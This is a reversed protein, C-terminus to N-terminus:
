VAGPTADSIANARPRDETNWYDRFRARWRIGGDTLTKRKSSTKGSFEIARKATTSAYFTNNGKKIKKMWGFLINCYLLNKLRAENLDIGLGSLVERLEGIKIAGYDYVIGCILLVIHGNEKLQFSEVEAFSDIRGNIAPALQAALAALDVHAVEGNAGIGVDARELRFVSEDGIEEELFRIPGNRIFSGAAYYTDEIVALVRRAVMPLAAFAGLEALSGPSESFLLILSVAAAIDSEFQFLDRYGAEAELPAGAEAIVIQHGPVGGSNALRIFCDRLSVPTPATADAIGGCLFIISTPRRVKLTKPNIARLYESPHFPV